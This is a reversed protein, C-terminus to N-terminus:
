TFATFTGVQTRVERRFIGGLVLGGALWEDARNVIKQEADSSLGVFSRRPIRQGGAGEPQEHYPWYDPLRSTDFFVGVPTAIWADESIARQYMETSLRLIGVQEPAPQALEQWPHGDPDTETEFREAMDVQARQKAGEMLVQTNELYRELQVLQYEIVPPDPYLWDFELGITAPFSVPRL